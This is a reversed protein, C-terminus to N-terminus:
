HLATQMEVLQYVTDHRQRCHAMRTDLLKRPDDEQYRGAGHKHQGKCYPCRIVMWQWYWDSRVRVRDLVADARPIGNATRM